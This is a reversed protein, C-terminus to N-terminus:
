FLHALQEVSSTVVCSEDRLDMGRFFRQDTQLLRLRRVHVRERLAQPTRQLGDNVDVEVGSLRFALRLVRQRAHLAGYLILKRRILRALSFAAYPTQIGRAIPAPDPGRPFVRPDIAQGARPKDFAEDISLRPKHPDVFGFVPGVIGDSKIKVAGVERMDAIAHRELYQKGTEAEVTIWRQITKSRGDM